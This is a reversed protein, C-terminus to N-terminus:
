IKKFFKFNKKKSIKKCKKYYINDGKKLISGEFHILIYKKKMYKKKYINNYLIYHTLIKITRKSKFDIIKGKKIM